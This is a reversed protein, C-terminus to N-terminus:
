PLGRVRLEHPALTGGDLLTHPMDGFNVTVSVGGAFSTQQVTHDETLWEHSLMERYGTARAVPAITKYSQVFRDRNERWIKADFMFM